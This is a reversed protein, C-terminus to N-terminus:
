GAPARLVAVNRPSADRDFAEVVIPPAGSEELLVARDHVLALELVRALMTRPLALRRMIAHEQVARAQAQELESRRPMPLGRAGFAHAAVHELGHRLQRRPIGHMEDGPPLAVGAERLLVYLARRVLRRQMVAESGVGGQALTALNALGLHARKMEMGLARGLASVPTRVEGDIKQPCCSVLMVGAGREAAARVIADGLAGCAHLGVLLDRPGIEALESLADAHVFYVGSGDTLSRANEVVHAQAEIGVAAVGLCAALERTLHGHGAGVDVVRAARGAARMVLAALAAVQLRKRASARRLPRVTAPAEARELKTAAIVERALERLSAPADVIEAISQATHGNECRELTREDLGLLFPTWGRRECWAPASPENVRDDIVDRLEAILAALRRLRVSPANKASM